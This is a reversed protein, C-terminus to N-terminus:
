LPATIERNILKNIFRHSKRQKLFSELKKAESRNSYAKQYVVTLGANRKGFATKGEKHELLRREVNSSEGIYYRDSEKSKLIYVYRM